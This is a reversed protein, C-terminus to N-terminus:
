RAAVAARHRFFVALQLTIQDAMAAALRRQTQENSLDAAFYQQDLINFGDTARASAAPSRRTRKADAETLRGTANGILRIRTATNDSEIGIGEGSIAFSVALDIARCPATRM